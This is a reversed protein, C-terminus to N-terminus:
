VFSPHVLVCSSAACCSVFFFLSCWICLLFLGFLCCSWIPPFFLLHWLHLVISSLIFVCCSSLVVSFLSHWLAAIACFSSGSSFCRRISYIARLGALCYAFRFCNFRHIPKNRIRFFGINVWWRILIFYFAQMVAVAWHTGQALIAITVMRALM